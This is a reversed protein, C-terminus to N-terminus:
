WYSQMCFQIFHKYGNTDETGRIVLGIVQTNWEDDVIVGSIFRLNDLSFTADVILTDYYFKLMQEAWPPFLILLALMGEFFEMEFKWNHITM